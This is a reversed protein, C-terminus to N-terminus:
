ADEQVNSAVKHGSDLRRRSGACQPLTEVDCDLVRVRDAERGDVVRHQVRQGEFKKSPADSAGKM